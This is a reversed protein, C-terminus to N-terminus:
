CVGKGTRTGSDRKLEEAGQTGKVVVKKQFLALQETIVPWGILSARQAQNGGPAFNSGLSGKFM